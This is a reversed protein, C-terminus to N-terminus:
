PTCSAITQTTQARIWAAVNDVRTHVFVGGNETCATSYTSNLQGRTVGAVCNSSYGGGFAPGGSDGSCTAAETGTAGDFYLHTADTSDVTNSGWRKTTGWNADSVATGGYGVLTLAMGAYVNTALAAPTVGQVTDNLRIVAVDSGIYWTSNYRYSPHSVATGTFSYPETYWRRFELDYLRMLGSVVMTAYPTGNRNVCHAATLVTRSGILTGTCHHDNFGQPNVQVVQLHGNDITGNVIEAELTGPEVMAGTTPEQPGCATAFLASCLLPLSRKLM